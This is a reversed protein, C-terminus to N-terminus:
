GRRKMFPFCESITRTNIPLSIDKGWLTIAARVMASQILESKGSAIDLSRLQASSSLSHLGGAVSGLLEIRHMELQQQFKFISHVHAQLKGELSIDKLFSFLDKIFHTPMRLSIWSMSSNDDPKLKGHLDWHSQPDWSFCDFLKLSFGWSKEYSSCFTEFSIWVEKAWNWPM